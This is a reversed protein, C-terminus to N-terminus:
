SQAGELEAFAERLVAQDSYYIKERGIIQYDEHGKGAVLLADGPQMLKVANRTAERRDVWQHFEGCDKMGPLVDRMIAGPEEERPNDSTLVAVDSYRCVAEGMLPRKRRDRNGGCGFVTIVRKFGSDKLANIAKILADPTHAYDVFADLGVNNPVRELRGPVGNFDKLGRMDAPEMGLGLALAQVGLLNMANFAGVLPSRFEWSKGNFSHALNIGEPGMGLVRGHLFDSAASGNAELGYAVHRGARHLTEGYLRNGYPDDTNVATAKGTFPVGGDGPEAFLRSKAQFYSEMDAHYDLHDQTLNTFLAGSFSLGAVRQQDLAHSSVEMIASEVGAKRMRALLGHLELCGPTTLPAPISEGPWRYSVTGIIGVRQGASQLLAELLYASTTKGNTGTVGLLKVPSNHTGYYSAALAGLAGRPDPTVAIELGPGAYSSVLPRIKELDEPSLVLATAGAALADAAFDAGGKAGPASPPLLVFIDGQRVKGSHVQPARGARAAADAVDASLKSLEVYQPNM